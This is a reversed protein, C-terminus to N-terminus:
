FNLGLPSPNYEYRTFKNVGREIIRRRVNCKGVRPVVRGVSSADDDVVLTKGLQSFDRWSNRALQLAGGEFHDVGTSRRRKYRGPSNGQVFYQPGGSTEFIRLRKDFGHKAPSCPCLLITVKWSIDKKYPSIVFEICCFSIFSDFTNTSTVGCFEVDKSADSGVSRFAQFAINSWRSLDQHVLAHATCSIVLVGATQIKQPSAPIVNLATSTVMLIKRSSM